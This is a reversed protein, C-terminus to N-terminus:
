NKLNKKENQFKVLFLFINQNLNEKKEFRNLNGEPLQQQKPQVAASM